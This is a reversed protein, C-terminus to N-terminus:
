LNKAAGLRSGRVQGDKENQDNQISQIDPAVSTGISHRAMQNEEHISYITPEFRELAKAKSGSGKTCPQDLGRLSKPKRTM